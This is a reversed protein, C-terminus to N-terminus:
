ERGDREIPVLPGATTLAAVYDEVRSRPMRRVAAVLTAWDDAHAPRLGDLLDQTAYAMVPRALRAPLGLDALAEAISLVLDAVQSVVLVKGKMGAHNEWPENAPFRVCICGDVPYRSIGWADLNPLPASEPAGIRLLDVVSFYELVRDPERDLVWPLVERRWEGARVLDLIRDLGPQNPRLGTVRARGRRIADAAASMAADAMDHSNLLVASQTIALREHEPVTPPVPLTDNAVRRLSLRALGLDLGLLSGSVRWGGASGTREEPLRWAAALRLNPREDLGFDHRAAPDGAMLALGDPDGLHPVYALSQLSSALMEDAVQCVMAAAATFAFPGWSQELRELAKLGDELRRRPAELNSAPSTGPGPEKASDAFAARIATVAASVTSASTVTSPLTRARRNFALVRDLSLGRQKRRVAVLRSFEAGALDVAYRQGEWSITPPVSQDPGCGAIAALVRLEAPGLDQATRASGCSSPDLAPLLRSELWEAVNGQYEDEASMTVNSLSRVLEGATDATLARGYRARELLALGGQFQGLAAALRDRDGIRSLRWAHRVAAAYISPDQIGMRELTLLLLRFPSYGRLTVLLDPIAAAPAVGFVRQGFQWTETRQMRVATNSVAILEVLSAADLPEDRDATRDEGAPREWLAADAFVLRWFNRGAPPAPEDNPAMRTVMLLRGGDDPARFFPRAEADWDAMAPEFARYLSKLRDLRDNPDALSLGLAFRLAPGELHAVSDYLLALRGAHRDILAWIFTMPERTSEGVLGEWLPIAQEGGPVEIRGARVRLSRGSSAMVGPRSGVLLQALRRSSEGLADRTPKDMSSFGFYLLSLRRDSLLATFLCGAMEGGPPALAKWTSVTLPMPAMDTPLGVTVTEGLNLGRVIASLDLGAEKLWQRRRTESAANTEVLRLSPAVDGQSVARSHASPEGPPRSLRELSCGIARAFEELLALQAKGDPPALTVKSDELRSRVSELRSVAELYERMRRRRADLQKDIGEEVEYISRIVELLARGSPMTGDLGVARAIAGTGGPIPLSDSLGSEQVSPNPSAGPLASVPTVLAVCVLAGLLTRVVVLRVAAWGHSVNVRFRSM